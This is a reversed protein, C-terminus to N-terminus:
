WSLWKGGRNRRKHHLSFLHKLEFDTNYQVASIFLRNILHKQLPVFSSILKRIGQISSSTKWMCIKRAVSVPCPRAPRNKSSEWKLERQGTKSNPAVGGAAAGSDSMNLWDSQRRHQCAAAWGLFSIVHLTELATSFNGRLSKERAEEVPKKTIWYCLLVAFFEEYSKWPLRLFIKSHDSPSRLSLSRRNTETTDASERDRSEILWCNFLEARNRHTHTTESRITLYTRTSESSM